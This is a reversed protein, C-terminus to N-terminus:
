SKFGSILLCTYVSVENFSWMNYYFTVIDSPFLSPSLSGDLQTATSIGQGEGFVGLGIVKRILQRPKPRINIKTLKTLFSQPDTSLISIKDESQTRAVSDQWPTNSQSLRM